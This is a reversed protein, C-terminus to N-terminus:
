RRASPPASATSMCLPRMRQPQRWLPLSMPGMMCREAGVSGVGGAPGMDYGLTEILQLQEVERSRPLSGCGTWLCQVLLASLLFAQRRM